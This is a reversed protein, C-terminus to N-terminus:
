SSSDLGPFRALLLKKRQAISAVSLRTSAAPETTEDGHDTARTAEGPERDSDRDIDALLKNMAPMHPVRRAIADRDNRLALARLGADTEEYAPFTVPSVELLRVELITRIEVEAEQGDNTEVTETDWRDKVCYFGFSMGTINKLELNTVLDAVYSLRLDMDAEVALGGADQSLRLSDASVRAVVKATDHDVLMRADGESLTKTFCGPSLQEYFGWTLPNGIATRSNFVAAHGVFQRIDPGEAGDAADAARIALGAAALTLDRREETALVSRVGM